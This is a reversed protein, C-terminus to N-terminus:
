IQEVIDDIDGYECWWGEPLNNDQGYEELLDIIEDAMIADVQSVTCRMRMASSVCFNIYYIDVRERIFEIAKELNTKM